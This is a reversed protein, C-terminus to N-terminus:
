FIEHLAIQVLRGKPTIGVIYDQFLTGKLLHEKSKFFRPADSEGKNIIFCRPGLCVIGHEHADIFSSAGPGVAIESLQKQNWEVEVEILKPLPLAYTSADTCFVISPLGSDLSDTLLVDNISESVSISGLLRGGALYVDVNAPSMSVRRSGMAVICGSSDLSVCAVPGGSVRRSEMIQNGDNDYLYVRQADTGMALYAKKISGKILENLLFIPERGPERCIDFATAWLQDSKLSLKSFRWSPVDLIKVEGTSLGMVLRGNNLAASVIEGQPCRWKGLVQMAGDESMSDLHVLGEDTVVLFSDDAVVFVEIPVISLARGLELMTVPADDSARSDIAFKFIERGSVGSVYAGHSGDLWTIDNSVGELRLIKTLAISSKLGLNISYVGIFGSAFGVVLMSPSVLAACWPIQECDFSDSFNWSSEDAGKRWLELRKNMSLVLLANDENGLWLVGLKTAHSENELRAIVKGSSTRLTVAGGQSSNVATRQTCTAILKGLPSAKGHQIAEEIQDFSASTAVLSNEPMHTLVEFRVSRLAGDNCGFHIFPHGDHYTTGVFRSGAALRYCTVEQNTNVVSVRGSDDCIVAYARGEFEVHVGGLCCSGNHKLILSSKCGDLYTLSGDKHLLVSKNPTLSVRSLISSTVDDNLKFFSSKRGVSPITQLIEPNLIPILELVSNIRRSCGSM